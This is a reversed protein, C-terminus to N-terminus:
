APDSQAKVFPVVEGEKPHRKRYDQWIESASRIVGNQFAWLTQLLSATFLAFPQCYRYFHAIEESAGEFIRGEVEVTGTTFPKCAFGDKIGQRAEGLSFGMEQLTSVILDNPVEDPCEAKFTLPDHDIVMARILRDQAERLKAALAPTENAKFEAEATTVESWLLDFHLQPLGRVQVKGYGLSENSASVVVDLWTKRTGGGLASFPIQM